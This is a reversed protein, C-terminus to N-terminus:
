NFMLLWDATGFESFVPELWSRSNCFNGKVSVQMSMQISFDKFSQTVYLIISRVTIMRGTFPVATQETPAPRSVVWLFGGFFLRLLFVSCNATISISYNLRCALFSAANKQTLFFVVPARNCM